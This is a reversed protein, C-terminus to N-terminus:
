ANRKAWERQAQEQAARSWDRSAATEAAALGAVYALTIAEIFREAELSYAAREFTRPWRKKAYRRGRYHNPIKAKSM